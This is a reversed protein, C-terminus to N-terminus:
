RLRWITRLLLAGLLVFLLAGLREVWISDIITEIYDLWLILGLSLTSLGWFIVRVNPQNSKQSADAPLVKVTLRDENLQELLQELQQPVALAANTYKDASDEIQGPSIM